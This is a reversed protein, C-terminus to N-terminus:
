LTINSIWTNSEWREKVIIKDTENSTLLISVIDTEDEEALAASSPKPSGLSKAPINGTWEMKNTDVKSESLELGGLMDTLQEMNKLREDIKKLSDVLKKGKDPLSKM